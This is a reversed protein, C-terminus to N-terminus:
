EMKERVKRYEKRAKSHKKEIKEESTSLKQKAKNFIARAKDIEIDYKKIRKVAKRITVKQRKTGKKDAMNQYYLDAHVMFSTIM